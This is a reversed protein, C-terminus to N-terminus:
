SQQGPQWDVSNLFPEFIDEDKDLYATDIEKKTPNRAQFSVFPVDSIVALPTSEDGEGMAVVASSALGTTINAVSVTLPRDFLDRQGRYDNLASFGSHALCIGSAGRRLPTSVSDTIIVGVKRLGYKKTLYERIDNATPQFSDLWLVYQGDANSKDIGAARVLTRHTITFRSGLREDAEPAYHSSHQKVLEDYALGDIPTVQGACLSVIQSTIALISGDALKDISRDILQQLSLQNARVIDTKIPQVVM